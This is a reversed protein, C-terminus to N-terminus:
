GHAFIFFLGLIKSGKRLFFEEDLGEILNIRQIKDYIPLAVIQKVIYKPRIVAHSIWNDGSLWRRGAARDPLTAGVRCEGRQPM